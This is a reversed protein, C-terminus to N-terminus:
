GGASWLHFLNYRSAFVGGHILIESALIVAVIAILGVWRAREGATRPLVLDLGRLYLLLFPLLAADLLRGSTFYPYQRSPYQCDGFDFALSSAALLATLIAVSAFGALMTAREVPEVDGRRAAQLTAVGVLILTSLVYLLDAAELAMPEGRWVIEGRWFSAILERLFTWQGPLTFLPHDWLASLPKVTWGLYALKATTGTLDGFTQLNWAIWALVPLLASAAVLALTSTVRARGERWAHWAWLILAVATVALLPLNTAKILCTAALALGTGLAIRPRPTQSRMLEVLGLLAAGFCVPSLVDSQISYFADQPFVALMVPVGLRLFRRGPSIRRAIAFGLAVLCAGLVANLARLWYVVLGGESCGVLRGLWFWAAATAYYLPPQTSEYNVRALAKLTFSAKAADSPRSWLPAPFPEGTFSGPSLYEPSGYLVVTRAASPAVPELARPVHGHAYKLIQDFHQAEDVPNFPPLAASFVLIRAACAVCLWRVLRREFRAAAPVVVASADRSITATM